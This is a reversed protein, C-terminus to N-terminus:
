YFMHSDGPTMPGPLVDEIPVNYEYVVVITGISDSKRFIDQAFKGRSVIFLHGNELLFIMERDILALFLKRKCGVRDKSTLEPQNGLRIPSSLHNCNDTPGGDGISPIQYRSEVREKPKLFLL